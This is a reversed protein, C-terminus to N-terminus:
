DSVRLGISRVREGLPVHSVDVVTRSVRSSLRANAMGHQRASVACARPRRTPRAGWFGMVTRVNARAKVLQFSHAKALSSRHSRLSFNISVGLRM